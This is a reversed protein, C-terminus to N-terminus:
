NSLIFRIAAPWDSVHAASNGAITGGLDIVTGPSEREETTGPIYPFSFAGHGAAPYNLHTHRAPDSRLAAMIRDAYVNSPWLQDDAGSILMVSGKFREIPIRAAAAGPAALGALFSNRESISGDANFTPTGAAPAIAVPHGNLTWSPSATRQCQGPPTGHAVSSPAAAVIGHVLTPWHAAVLLEAETGRSASEVWVRGADVQSRGRLWEIARVFYELPIDSLSCPLGPEDFYALALSPIGHSALLAALQPSAGLAGESGGWVVVSPSRGSGPPTFYQGFFGNKAITESRETVGPGSLLQTVSASGLRRGGARVFLTTVAPGTAASGARVLHQSWFLGMASVGRYSGSQPATRTLDVVGAGNAEYTATASWLGDLRPTTATISVTEGPDLRSVVISRSVDYLGTAPEVKIVAPGARSGSGCGCTLVLVVGVPWVLRRLGM